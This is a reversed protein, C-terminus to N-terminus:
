GEESLWAQHLAMASDDHPAPGLWEGRLVEPEVLGDASRGSWRAAFDRTGRGWLVESYRAKTERTLVAEPLMDGFLARMGTTRDGFGLRGGGRALAALFGDELLPHILTTGADAALLSLSWRASCVSRRRAFWDVWRSWSRPQRARADAELRSAQRAAEPRLWVLEALRPTRRERWNRLAGPSAAYALRLGDLAAPRRRRALVDAHNRWRWQAFLEDGGFGSVLSGGRAAELMPIQLFTNPPYLVGHRRLVSVSFPGLREMEDGLERREWDHLGLHGVVLEQWDSEEALPADRLRLTVPVPPDLGERRAALTAAALVGSSDRGGSFSVLCPPRALAPVIAAELAALPTLGADDAGRIGAAGGHDGFM